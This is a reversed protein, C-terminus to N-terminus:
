ESMLSLEFASTAFHQASPVPIYGKIEGSERDTPIRVNLVEGCESFFETLGSRIQTHFLIM